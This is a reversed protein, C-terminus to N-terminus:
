EIRPTEDAKPAPTGCEPCVGSVNGRLNYGCTRCHGPPPLPRGERVLERTQADIKTDREEKLAKKEAKTKAAKIRAAYERRVEGTIARIEQERFCQRAFPDVVHM